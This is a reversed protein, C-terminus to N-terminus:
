KEFLPNEATNFRIVKMQNSYWLYKQTLLNM